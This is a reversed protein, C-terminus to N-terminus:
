VDMQFVVAWGRRPPGLGSDDVPDQWSLEGGLELADLDLDPFELQQVPSSRLSGHAMPNEYCSQHFM